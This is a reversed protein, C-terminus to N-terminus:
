IMRALAFYTPMENVSFAFSVKKGFFVDKGVNAVKPVARGWSNSKELIGPIILCIHGNGSPNKSSAMVLVGTNAHSQATFDDPISIWGNEYKNMYDFMENALMGDFDQYGYGDCIYQIFKNCFTKIVNGDKDLVPQLDGFPSLGRNYGFYALNLLLPLNRAPIM